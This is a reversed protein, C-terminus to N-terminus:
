QQAGYNRLLQAVDEHKERLALAYPSWQGQSSDRVNIDAGKRILLEVIPTSGSEAAYHLPTRGANDRARVDANKLILYEAAKFNGSQAATHLPTRMSIDTTKVAKRDKEVYQRVKAMNGQRIASHISQGFLLTYALFALAAIVIIVAIKRIM